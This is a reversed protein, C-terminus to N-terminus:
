INLVVFDIPVFFDHIRVSIKDEIGAPYRDSQDALQLCMTTPTLTSYDLKDFVIKPMVSVSAILDCFTNEFMQNGISYDITPCGLDKKKIPSSRLIAENCAKTLKIVETSPLPGKNEGAEKDVQVLHSPRRAGEPYPPDRTVKGGRTSIGKIQEHNTASLISALHTIQSEIKKIFMIQEKIALSFNDLKSNIGELMEDNFALKKYLSENIRAQELILERLPPQRQNSNFDNQYKGQNAAQPQSWGQKKSIASIDEEHQDQSNFTDQLAQCNRKYNDRQELWSLLVDMKTSLACLEEPVEESEHCTQTNFTWNQNEAMKAMIAEARRPTLSMFSGEATADLQECSRQTLGYYFTQMLLWKEMGHHPCDSIYGQFHEWAKPIPEGKQHHFESIKGRLINTRGIPFIKELL